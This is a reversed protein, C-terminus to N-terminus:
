WENTGVERPLPPFIALLVRWGWSPSCWAAATVLV